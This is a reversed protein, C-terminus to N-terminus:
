NGSDSAIDHTLPKRVFDFETAMRKVAGRDLAGRQLRHAKEVSSRACHARDDLDQPPDREEITAMYLANNVLPEVVAVGDDGPEQTASGSRASQDRASLLVALTCRAVGRSIGCTCGPAPPPM